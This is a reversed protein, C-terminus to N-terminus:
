SRMSCYPSCIEKLKNKIILKNNENEPEINFDKEVELRLNSYEYINLYDKVIEIM